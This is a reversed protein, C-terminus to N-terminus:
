TSLYGPLARFICAGQLADGQNEVMLNSAQSIMVSQISPQPDALRYKQLFIPNQVSATHSLFMQYINMPYSSPCYNKRLLGMSLLM